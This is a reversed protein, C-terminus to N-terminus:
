QTYCAKLKGYDYFFSAPKLRAGDCAPKFASEKENHLMRLVIHGAANRFVDWQVNAAMPAVLAGRWANDKHSYLQAKPVPTSMGPLGLQSVLPIVTEAHAFRLKAGHTLEGRAIADVESFFDAQLARAMNWSVGNLEAIGPGRKYFTETDQLFNLTRAQEPPIYQDFDMGLETKMGPAIIYVDYLAAAVEFLSNLHTKGDGKITTSYKGDDSTFDYSGTNDFQYAGSAIKDVFAKSFLRELVARAAVVAAPNAASAAIKGDLDGSKEFAQYAQSDLYTQYRPDSPGSVKDSAPKLSHFYLTFRDTGAPHAVPADFPYPAPAPPQVVLAALAPADGVLSRTFNTASDRARDVGSSVVVIERKDGAIQEFLAPLRQRLRRALQQHEAIGQASLNGYGPRSIGDVGYGLLAMSRVVKQLDPGLKAGLPTLAQEAAAKKWVNLLALDTKPGTLGRSGHRALLETFVARYGAPVAEYTAPDQHPQYPTKTTYFTEAASTSAAWGAVIALVLRRVAFRTSSQM